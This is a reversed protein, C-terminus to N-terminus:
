LSVEEKMIKLVEHATLHENGERSLILAAYGVCNNYIRYKMSDVVKGAVHPSAMSTGSDTITGKPDVNDLSTIEVGPALM